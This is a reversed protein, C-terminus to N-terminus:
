TNAFILYEKLFHCYEEVVEEPRQCVIYYIQLLYLCGPSIHGFDAVLGREPEVESM